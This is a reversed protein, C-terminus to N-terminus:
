MCVCIYSSRCRDCSYSRLQVDISIDVALLELEANGLKILKLTIHISRRKSTLTISLIKYIDSIRGFSHM